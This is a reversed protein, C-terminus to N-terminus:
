SKNFINSNIEYIYKRGKKTMNIIKKEDLEKLIKRLKIKDIQLYSSLSQLTVSDVVGQRSILFLNSLVDYEKKTLNNKDM